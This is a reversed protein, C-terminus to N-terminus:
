GVNTPKPKCSTKGGFKEKGVTDMRGRWSGFRSSGERIYYSGRPGQSSNSTIQAVKHALISSGVKSVRPSSISTNACIHQFWLGM